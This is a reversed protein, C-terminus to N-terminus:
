VKLYNKIALASGAVGVGIGIVLFVILMPIAVVNFPVVTFLASSYSGIIRDAIFNYLGWQAAYAILAGLLGLIFGELVFPWRIFANTAGVMKMIGIEVRRDFTTLKVTNSMIFLSVILLVIVLALSVGSVINRVTVFGRAINDPIVSPCFMKTEGGLPLWVPKKDLYLSRIAEKPTCPFNYVPVTTGMFGPEERVIRLEDESFPIKNM